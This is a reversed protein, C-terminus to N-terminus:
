CNSFVRFSLTLSIHLYNLNLKERFSRRIIGVYISKAVDAKVVLIVAAVFHEFMSLCSPRSWVDVNDFDTCCFCSFCFVAFLKVSEDSTAINPSDAGNSCLLQVSISESMKQTKQQTKMVIDIVFSM